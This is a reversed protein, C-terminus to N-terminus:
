VRFGFTTGFDGSSFGMGRCPGESDFIHGGSCHLITGSGGLGRFSHKPTRPKTNQPKPTFGGKGPEQNNQGKHQAARAWASQSLAEGDSGGIMGSVKSSTLTGHSGM